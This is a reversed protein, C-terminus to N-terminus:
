KGVSGILNKHTLPVAKPRGTTGSTHLVLAIDDVHPENLHVAEHSDLKGKEKVDFMMQDESWYCEVIAAEYKRAARVAPSDKAHAGCPVIVTTTGLDDIHFEVEDQKYTPNLPAAIGRQWTTALFNIVFELSNLLSISVAAGPSIGLKAFQQQCSKIHHELSLHSVILPENGPIIISINDKDALGLLDVLTGM